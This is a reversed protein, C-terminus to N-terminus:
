QFRQFGFGNKGIGPLKPWKGGNKSNNEEQDEMPIEDNPTANSSSIANALTSGSVDSINAQLTSMTIEQNFYPNEFSRTSGSNSNNLSGSRSLIKRGSKYYWIGVIIMATILLVAMVAGIVTPSADRPSTEVIYEDAAIFKLPPSLQSTGNANGAKIVLEYPVGTQLNEITYSTDATDVKYARGSGIPRWLIRYLDVVEPNKSPQDWKAIASTASTPTVRINIPPGPLSIHGEHFCNAITKAHSLACTESQGKAQLGRCWDLCERPVGNNHCCHRHDSGDSGCSMLKDFETFCQPDFM